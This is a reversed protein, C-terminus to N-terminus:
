KGYMKESLFQLYAKSTTLEPSNIKSETEMKQSRFNYNSQGDPTLFTVVDGNSFYAFQKSSPNLLNKGFIYDQNDISLQGLLTPSFDVQGGVADITKHKFEEKLAGGLWLMPIHYRTKDFGAGKAFYNVGHDAVIIMLTNDWWPKKACKQIFDGLSADTYHISSLFKEDDNKSGLAYAVPIDFPHHSSLTFLSHFSKEPSQDIYNFFDQL